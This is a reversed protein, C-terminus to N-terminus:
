RGGSPHVAARYEGYHAAYVESRSVTAILKESISITLIRPPLSIIAARVDDDDGDDPPAGLMATEVIKRWSRRDQEM